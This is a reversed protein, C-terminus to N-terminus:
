KCITRRRQYWSRQLGRALAAAGTVTPTVLGQLCNCHNM